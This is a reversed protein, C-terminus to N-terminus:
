LTWMTFLLIVCNRASRCQVIALISSRLQATYKALSWWPPIPIKQHTVEKVFLRLTCSVSKKNWGCSGHIAQRKYGSHWATGTTLVTFAFHLMFWGKHMSLYAGAGQSGTSSYGPISVLYPCPNFCATCIFWLFYSLCLRESCSFAGSVQRVCLATFIVPAWCCGVRWAIKLVVIILCAQFIM